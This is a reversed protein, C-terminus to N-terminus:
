SRPMHGPAREGVKSERRSERFAAPAGRALEVEYGDPRERTDRTPRQTCSERLAGGHAANPEAGPHYISGQMANSWRVHRIRHVAVWRGGQIRMPVRTATDLAARRHYIYVRRGGAPHQRHETLAATRRPGPVEHTIWECARRHNKPTHTTTYSLRCLFIRLRTSLGEGEQTPFFLSTPRVLAFRTKGTYRSLRM